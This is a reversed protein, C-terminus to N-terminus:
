DLTIVMFFYYKFCIYKNDQFKEKLFGSSDEQFLQEM